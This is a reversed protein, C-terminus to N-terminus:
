ARVATAKVKAKGEEVVVRFKVRECGTKKRIAAEQKELVKALKAETLGKAGQGTSERATVYADFLDAKSPGTDSAQAASRRERSDVEERERLDAKFLHREYRGEEIKRLTDDWLRKYTSYRSRLNNFKFRHGTNNISINAYTVVMKNVESRLMHPERKRTGLFYQDYENKLMKLKNDLLILDEAIDIGFQPM